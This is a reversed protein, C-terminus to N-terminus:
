KNEKISRRAILHELSQWLKEGEEVLDFSFETGRWRTILLRLTGMVIMFLHDPDGDVIKKQKQGEIFASILHKRHAQITEMVKQLLENYGKFIDESFMVLVLGRNQSFQRCRGLFFSKIKELSSMHSDVIEKLIETSSIHFLEAIAALIEEKSDFHRYIAGETVRIRSSLRKITLNQIGLSSIIELAAEIIEQQRGTFDAM